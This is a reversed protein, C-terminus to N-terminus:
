WQQRYSTTTDVPSAVLLTQRNIAKHDTWKFWKIIQTNGHYLIMIWSLSSVFDGRKLCITTILLSTQEAIIKM